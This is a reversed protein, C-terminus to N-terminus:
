IRKTLSSTKTIRSMVHIHHLQKILNPVKNIDGINPKVEKTLKRSQHLLNSLIEQSNCILVLPMLCLLSLSNLKRNRKLFHDLYSVYYRNHNKIFKKQKNKPPINALRNKHNKYLRAPEKNKDLYSTLM